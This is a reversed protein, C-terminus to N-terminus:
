ILTETTLFDVEMVTHLQLDKLRGAIKMIAITLIIIIPTWFRPRSTGNYEMNDGGIIDSMAVVVAIAIRRCRRFVM